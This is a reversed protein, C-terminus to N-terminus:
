QAPATETPPAETVCEAPTTAEATDGITVQDELGLVAVTEADPEGIAEQGQATQYAM